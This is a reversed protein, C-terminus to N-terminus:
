VLAEAPAPSPKRWPARCGSRRTHLTHLAFWCVTRPMYVSSVKRRVRWTPSVAEVPSTGRRTSGAFSCGISVYPGDLGTRILDPLVSPALPKGTLARDLRTPPARSTPLGGFLNHAESFPSRHRSRSASPIATRRGHLAWAHRSSGARSLPHLRTHAVHLHLYQCRCPDVARAAKLSDDQPESLPFLPLPTLPRVHSVPLKSGPVHECRARSRPVRPSPLAQLVGNPFM